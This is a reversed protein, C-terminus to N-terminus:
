CSDFVGGGRAFRMGFDEFVKSGDFLRGGAALKDAQARFNTDDALSITATADHWCRWRRERPAVENLADFLRCSSHHRAGCRWRRGDRIKRQNDVSRARRGIGAASAQAVCLQVEL